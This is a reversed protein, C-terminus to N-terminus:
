ALALQTPRNRGIPPPSYFQLFGFGGGAMEVRLWRRLNFAQIYISQRHQTVAVLEYDFIM